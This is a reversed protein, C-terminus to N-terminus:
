VHYKSNEKALHVIKQPFNCHDAFCEPFAFEPGLTHVDKKNEIYFKNLQSEDHWQAIVDDELDDNVRKELEDIMDFVAPVKGGWLCGQWYTTTDSDRICM